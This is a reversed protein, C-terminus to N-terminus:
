RGGEGAGTGGKLRVSRVLIPTAPLTQAPNGDAQLDASSPVTKAQRIRDLADWGSTVRGFVAYGLPNTTQSYDLSPNDVLNIFFQSNASDPGRSRAMAITGRRNKLGNRSELKIDAYLPQKQRLDPTYGGGQVLFNDIVRHLITGDYFGARVYRLFNEVTVPAHAPDLEVTIEGASTEIVVVPVAQDAAADQASVAGPLGGALALLAVIM